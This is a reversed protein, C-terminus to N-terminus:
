PQEVPSAEVQQQLRELLIQKQELLQQNQQQTQVLQEACQPPQQQLQHQAAVLQQALENAYLHKDVAWMLTVLLLVSLGACIMSWWPRLVEVM